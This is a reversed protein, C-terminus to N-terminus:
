AELAEERAGAELVEEAPAPLARRERIQLFRSVVEVAEDRLLLLSEADLM